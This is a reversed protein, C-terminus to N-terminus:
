CSGARPAASGSACGGGPGRGRGARRPDGRGPRDRLEEAGGQPEGDGLAAGGCTGAHFLFADPLRHVVALQAGRVGLRHLRGVGAVVGGIGRRGDEDHIFKAPPVIEAYTWIPWANDYLDLKPVFDTLDINAQWFADITGVDRWYPETELGSTVCSDSFQHAMAKGNKVIQPILDNGFDHSSNPDEADRILLDRLFAWDFVYIGM